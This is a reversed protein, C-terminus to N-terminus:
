QDAGPDQARDDGTTTCAPTAGCSDATEEQLPHTGPNPDVGVIRQRPSGTVVHRFRQAWDELAQHQEAGRPSRDYIGGVSRDRHGLILDILHRDYGLDALQTAVTRRCDHPTCRHLGAARVTNRCHRRVTDDSVPFVRPSRPWLLRAEQITERALSSLQITHPFGNKAKAAPLQWAGGLEDLDHPELTVVESIRAATAFVFGVALHAAPSSCRSIHPWWSALEDLTLVRSRPGRQRVGAKEAPNTALLGRRVAFALLSRLVAHVRVAQETAGRARIAEIVAFVEDRGIRRIELDGLRTVTRGVTVRVPLIQREILRADQDASRKRTQADAIYQHALTGLPLDDGRRRMAHIRDRDRRAAQIGLDPYQGLKIRQCRNARYVNVTWTKTGSPAVRLVLGHADRLEYRKAKPQAEDIQKRTLSM